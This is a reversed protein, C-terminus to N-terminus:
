KVEYSAVSNRWFTPVFIIKNKADIGIDASNMKIPRGDMLTQKSGDAKVYYVVGAWTSVIFEKGNIVEVGDTGGEMGDTILALTKDANMKYLGGADLVYLANKYALVGNPGKLSDLLITANDGKVQYVRKAKSDSVYITGKNDISIDNLGAAGAVVIRKEIVGTATNIVVIEKLDAVYLKGKYMGMGKPAQLGTVWDVTINKGDANMKGVSGLGDAGWPDKGDINAVYLVNGAKNFLVSEPVKFVSDTEWKKVLQHNQSKVATTCFIFFVSFLIAFKM